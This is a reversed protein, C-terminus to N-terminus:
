AAWGRTVSSHSHAACSSSPLLTRRVALREAIRARQFQMFMVGAILGAFGSVEWFQLIKAHGPTTNTWEQMMASTFPTSRNGASCLDRFTRACYPPTPTSWSYWLSWAWGGADIVADFVAGLTADYADVLATTDAQVLGM